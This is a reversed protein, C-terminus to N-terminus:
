LVFWGKSVMDIREGQVPGTGRTALTKKTFAGGKRGAFWCADLSEWARPNLSFDIGDDIKFAFPEYLGSLEAEFLEM